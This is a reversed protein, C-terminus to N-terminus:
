EGVAAKPKRGPKKRVVVPASEAELEARTKKVPKRQRKRIPLPRDLIAQQALDVPMGQAIDERQEEMGTM